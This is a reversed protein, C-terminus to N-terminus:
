CHQQRPAFPRTSPVSGSGFTLLRRSMAVGLSYVDSRSDTHQSEIREPAMFRFKGILTKSAGLARKRAAGFDLVKTLGTFGVMINGPSMDCHIVGSHEHAYHLGSCCDVLVALIFWPHLRRGVTDRQKQMVVALSRGRVYEMALFPLEGYHGLEYVATLNPHDLSSGIRAEEELLRTFAQRDSFRPSVTKIVVEKKFGATGHITALWIDGMGGQAIPRELIYRGLKAGAEM